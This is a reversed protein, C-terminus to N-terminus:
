DYNRTFRKDGIPRMFTYIAPLAVFIDGVREFADHPPAIASLATFPSIAIFLASGTITTALGLPRFLIIDIPVFLPDYRTKDPTTTEAQVTQHFFLATLLSILLYKKM